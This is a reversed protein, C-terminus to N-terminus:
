QANITRRRAALLGGVIVGVVATALYLYYPWMALYPVDRQFIARAQLYAINPVILLALVPLALMALWRRRWTLVRMLLAGALVAWLFLVLRDIWLFLDYHGGALVRSLLEGTWDALLHMAGIVAIVLLVQRAHVAWPANM